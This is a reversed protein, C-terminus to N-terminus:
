HEDDLHDFTGARWVLSPLSHVTQLRGITCQLGYRDSITLMRCSAESRGSAASSVLTATPTVAIFSEVSCSTLIDKNFTDIPPQCLCLRQEVWWLLYRIRDHEGDPEISNM